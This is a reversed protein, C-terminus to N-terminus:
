PERAEQASRGEMLLSDIQAKLQPLDAKITGWVIHWDVDFYEHIMKNRLGRMEAWPLEPHNAVFAPAATQIRGAAEGIIELNRVVADQIQENRRLAEANDLPETYRTARQIAQAIHELYEHVREPHTM